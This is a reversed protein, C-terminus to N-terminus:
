PGVDRPAPAVPVLMVPVLAAAIAQSVTGARGEDLRQSWGLVILDARERLAVELVHDGAAGSRLELRVGPRACNRALFEQTWAHHGHALHNWFRPVTDADFVHLAVLDVGARAFQGTSEAVAAAAQPTGDLPLLVRRLRPRKGRMAAPVLIVPKVSTQIVRRWIPGNPEDGPLVAVAVAPEGLERLARAAAHEADPEGAINVRHVGADVLEGVVAATGIVQDDFDATGTVALIETM